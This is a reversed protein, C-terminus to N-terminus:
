APALGIRRALRYGAEVLLCAFMANILLAPRALLALAIADGPEYGLLMLIGALGGEGIGFGAISFCALAGVLNLGALVLLTEGTGLPIGCMAFVVWLGAAAAVWSAAVAISARVGHRGDTSLRLEDAFRMGAAAARPFRRVLLLLRRLVLGAIRATARALGANWLLSAAALAAMAYALWGPLADQALVLLLGIGAFQAIVWLDQLRYMLLMRLSDFLGIGTLRTALVPFGADGAGSPLLMFAAQHAAALRVWRAAPVAAAGAPAMLALRYARIALNVIFLLAALAFPLPQVKQWAAGLAAADTFGLLLAMTAASVVVALAIRTARRRDRTDRLRM